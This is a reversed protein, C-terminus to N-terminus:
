KDKTRELYVGALVGALFSCFGWTLLLELPAQEYAMLDAFFDM